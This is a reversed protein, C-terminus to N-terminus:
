MMAVKMQQSPAALAQHLRPEFKHGEPVTHYTAIRTVVGRRDQKSMKPPPYEKVIEHISIITKSINVKQEKKQGM